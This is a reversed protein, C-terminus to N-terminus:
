LAATAVVGAIMLSLCAFYLSTRPVTLSGSAQSTKITTSATAFSGRVTITVPGTPGAAAKTAGSSTGNGPMEDEGHDRYASGDEEGDDGHDNGLDDAAQSTTAPASPASTTTTPNSSAGNGYMREPSAPQATITCGSTNPCVYTTFDYSPGYPTGAEDRQRGGCFAQINPGRQSTVCDLQYRWGLNNAFQERFSICFARTTGYGDYQVSYDRDSISGEAFAQVGSAATLLTVLATTTTTPYLRTRKRQRTQDDVRGSSM